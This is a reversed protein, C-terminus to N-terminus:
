REIKPSVGACVWRAARAARRAASCAQGASLGAVRSTLVEMEVLTAGHRAARERRGCVRLAVAGIGATPSVKWYSRGERRWLAPVKARDERSLLSRSM